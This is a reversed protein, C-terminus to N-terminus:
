HGLDVAGCQLLHCSAVCWPDFLGGSAGFREVLMQCRTPLPPRKLSGDPTRRDSQEQVVLESWHDLPERIGRRVGSRTGGSCRHAHTTRRCCRGNRPLGRQPCVLAGGDVLRKDAQFSDLQVLLRPHVEARAPYRAGVLGELLEEAVNGPTLAASPHVVPVNVFWSQGGPVHEVSLTNDRALPHCVRAPM